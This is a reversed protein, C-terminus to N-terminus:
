IPVPLTEVAVSRLVILVKFGPIIPAPLGKRMTGSLMVPCICISPTMYPTVSATLTITM